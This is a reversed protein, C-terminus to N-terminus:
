RGRFQPARKELFASAGERKDETTYLVTQALRELLLGTRQDTEAGNAIVLKALQVALPGKSLVTAATARAADILEALPYVDAVLGHDLARAADVVRSTLIMEVARGRGVLRSLRQTGGAGPLVGLTTEPLGVRANEAAIRIDCSMALELGGGLAVGNIAAITPKPYEEIRDFLRAMDGALGYHLDYDRLEAIDAGAVFAREGSGTFILAAVEPDREWEGLVTHIEELVTTSLANRKEPRDITITGIREAVATTITEFRRGSM